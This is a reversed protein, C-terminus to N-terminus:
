LKAAFVADPLCLPWCRQEPCLTGVATTFPSASRLMSVKFELPGPLWCTGMLQCSGHSGPCALNVGEIDLDTFPAM